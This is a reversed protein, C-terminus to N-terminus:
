TDHEPVFIRREHDGRREEHIFCDWICVPTRLMFCVAQAKRLPLSAKNPASKNESINCIKLENGFYGQLIVDSITVNTVTLAIAKESELWFTRLCFPLADWSSLVRITRM